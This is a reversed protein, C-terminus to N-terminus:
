QWIAGDGQRYQHAPYATTLQTEKCSKDGQFIFLYCGEASRILPHYRADLTDGYKAIYEEMNQRITAEDECHTAILAPCNEFINDLATENDVLLDGTSSGMFIKVGCIQSYDAKLIEDM